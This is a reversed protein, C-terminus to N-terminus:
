TRRLQLCSLYLFKPDIFPSIRALYPFSAPSISSTVYLEMVIQLNEPTIFVDILRVINPHSLKKLVNVETVLDPNAILRRRDIVKIAVKEQTKHHVGYYVQSTKGRLLSSHLSLSISALTLWTREVSAGNLM